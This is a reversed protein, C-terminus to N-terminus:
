QGGMVPLILEAGKLGNVYATIKVSGATPGTRLLISAIGAEANIPNQGVLEADGEARFIISHAADPVVTGREDVVSAYVFVVDNSSLDRGSRDVTLRLSQAAGPTQVATEVMASGNLYGVAKLEGATFRSLPFTFPPHALQTAYANQDPKQRGVSKGNLFLEVEECNSYVVVDRASSRTWYTAIYIMPKGFGTRDPVPGYQSQYFYFAFKPLRFIDSIGSAELDPAYGRNYDYMLWNADGAARGRLNDNHAEQYNLAQQLLRKEGAGRLQRSSREGEKLDKFAKQNFGANQAYYEWDGYEAILLPKNKDYTNWYHPPKAHQRVPIFVDYVSDLWGCTYVDGAPLEDHVTRHAQEMYAPSMGSENLSAEWLIVSPHNRDRRVMGRVDQLSNTQFTSDGFFQWGPIADMVLLGLEDCADLFAPSQPYHSCRVFNFGADKIKWADRYNANDSLAYGLYPYEQHRNTGRIKLKEGNLYFGDATFQFTRIGVGVEEKDAVRGSQLVEVLLRYLYPDSPSWLRPRTVRIAQTFRSYAGRRVSVERSLSQGVPRGASDLLTLRIKTLQAKRHDNKVETQVNVVASEPSVQSYYVWIGGGAKRDAQVADPIHLKDEVILYVNRYLGSYYNFDLDKIPKGPPIAPNDQNNVKVLVCNEAGITAYQSIDVEFPLYGGIHKLLHRGNLYVDAEHMAAEFHIALRKDKDAASISFFKRYFCTGQWQNGTIILPEPQATHPLSVLRWPIAPGANKRFFDATVTTDIDKVFEWGINFNLAQSIAPKSRVGGAVAQSTGNLMVLLLFFFSIRVSM